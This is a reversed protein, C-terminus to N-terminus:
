IQLIFCSLVCPGQHAFLTFLLMWHQVCSSSILCSVRSSQAPTALRKGCCTGGKTHNLHLTNLIISINRMRELTRRDKAFNIAVEPAEVLHAFLKGPCPRCHRRSNQGKKGFFPLSRVSRVWKLFEVLRSICYM